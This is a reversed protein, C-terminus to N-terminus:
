RCAPRRRPAAPTRRNRQGDAPRHAEGEHGGLALGIPAEGDLGLLTSCTTSSSSCGRRRRRWSSGGARSMTPRSAMPVDGREPRAQGVARLGRCRAQPEARRTLSMMTSARVTTQFPGIPINSTRVRRAPVRVTAWATASVLANWRRRRRRSPRRSQGLERRWSSTSWTDCRRRRRTSNRSARRGAQAGPTSLIDSSCCTASRASSRWRRCPSPPQPRPGPTLRRGAEPVLRELLSTWHSFVPTRQDRAVPLHVVVVEFRDLPASAPRVEHALLSPATGVDISGGGNVSRRLTCVTM